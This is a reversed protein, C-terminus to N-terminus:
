QDEGPLRRVGPIPDQEAAPGEVPGAHPVRVDQRHGCVGGHCNGLTTTSGRTMTYCDEIGAKQLLKKPVPASVIGTGRPGTHSPVASM